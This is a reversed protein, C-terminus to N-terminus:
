TPHNEESKQTTFSSTSIFHSFPLKGAFRSRRYCNRCHIEPVLRFRNTPNQHRRNRCWRHSRSNNSCILLGSCSDSTKSLLQDSISHGAFFPNNFIISFFIHHPCVMTFNTCRKLKITLFFKGM